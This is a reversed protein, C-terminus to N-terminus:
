AHRGLINQGGNAFDGLPKTRRQVSDVVDNLGTVDDRNTSGSIAADKGLRIDVEDSGLEPTDVHLPLALLTRQSDISRRHEGCRM